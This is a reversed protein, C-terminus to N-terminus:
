AKSYHLGVDPRDTSLLSIFVQYVFLLYTLILHSVSGKRYKQTIFLNKGYKGGEENDRPRPLSWQLYM